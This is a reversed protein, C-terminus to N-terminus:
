RSRGRTKVIGGMIGLGIIVVLGIWIWPEGIGLRDAGIALAGAVLIVGVMYIAFNTM